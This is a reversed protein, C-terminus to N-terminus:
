KAGTQKAAPESLQQRVEADIGQGLRRQHKATSHQYILQARESSQGARVVLSELKACVM